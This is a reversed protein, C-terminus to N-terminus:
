AVMRGRQLTTFGLGSRTSVIFGKAQLGIDSTEMLSSARLFM